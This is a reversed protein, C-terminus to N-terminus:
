KWAHVKPQFVEALVAAIREATRGDWLPPVVHEAAPARLLRDVAGELDPPRSGILRNTGHSITAPRETNDRLTLCPVGLFTTEEQLGGSDTLVLRARSVLNIFDLYGLPEAFRIGPAAIGSEDLQRRTRPHVPFVLPVSRSIRELSAITARLAAADDVNAPRHLTVVGYSGPEMGFEAWMRRDRILPLLDVLCDIMVNGVFHIKAGDVGERILNTLAGDETIFLLDAIADTVLRNIEEPMTRDRSRLGAEVHAIAPRGGDAYVIKSAALAAALTSNVDGVVVVLDPREDLLTAEFAALIRATQAGHSGSGVNLSVHPAPLGLQDFFVGSMAADYHQGTHVIRVDFGPVARLRKFIPAIKMFNPRAGAVLLIRTV